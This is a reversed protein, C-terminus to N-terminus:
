NNKHYNSVWIGVIRRVLTQELDFIVPYQLHQNLVLLLQPLILGELLHHWHYKGLLDNLPFNQLLLQLFQENLYQNCPLCLLHLDNDYHFQAQYDFSLLM